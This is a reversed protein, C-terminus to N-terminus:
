KLEKTMEIMTKRFGLRTFVHQAPENPIATWLLVRPLGQERMWDFAANMLADVVGTARHAEDVFVDHVYGARERLEHWSRPEIGAYIYGVLQGNQEAVIVLADRHDLQAALFSAYGQESGAGPQMFRDHDFEYHVRMLRVGMRGIADVDAPTARRLTFSQTM